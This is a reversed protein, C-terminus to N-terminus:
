SAIIIVQSFGLSHAHRARDCSDKNVATLNYMFRKTPLNLCCVANRVIVFLRETSVYQVRVMVTSRILIQPTGYRRVTSGNKSKLM